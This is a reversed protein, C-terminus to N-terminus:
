SRLKPKSLDSSLPAPPKPDSTIGLRKMRIASNTYLFALIAYYAFSSVYTSPDISTREAPRVGPLALVFGLLSLTALVIFVVGLRRSLKPKSTMRWWARAAIPNENSGRFIRAGFLIASLDLLSGFVDIPLHGAPFLQRLAFVLLWSAGWYGVVYVLKYQWKVIRV